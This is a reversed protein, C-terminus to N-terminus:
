ERLLPARRDRWPMLLELQRAVQLVRLDEGAAGGIQVGIPLGDRSVGLPLSAAPAGTVNYLATYTGLQAAKRFSVEPDPDDFSGIPPPLCPVTPSLVVDCGTSWARLRETIRAQVAQADRRRIRKGALGLWRTVPQVRSWRVAPISSLLQQYIPLFEDVSGAPPPSEEIHHGVTALTEAARLVVARVEPDPTVVPNDLVLRVRLPPLPGDLLASFPQPPPALWHPKGVTLGAMVDLLAAGDGVTRAIPGCTYLVSRDPMGYANPVRGNSAKFGFLHCFTCPIRISGAGDSGHAIPLLGAAVAAASGGSSGGPTRTPNWPNRTPPHTDPETVPMAGLESTALKGLIVFGARRLRAVTRDDLPSWWGAGRSGFRARSWRVFNLDKIGIPVGHFPPLEDGARLRRREADRARADRRAREAFVSVFAHLEPDLREIRDLYLRTLEESSVRGERVMRAQDLASAELIPNSTM